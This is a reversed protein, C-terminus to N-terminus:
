RGPYIFTNHRSRGTKSKGKDLFYPHRTKGRRSDNTSEEVQRGGGEGPLKRRGGNKWVCPKPSFSSPIVSRIQSGGKVRVAADEGM